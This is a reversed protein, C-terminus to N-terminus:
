RPDPYGDLGFPTPILPRGDDPSATLYLRYHEGDVPRLVVQIGEAQGADLAALTRAGNEAIVRPHFVNVSGLDFTRGALTLTFEPSIAYMCHPEGSLGARFEPDDHGTGNLTITLAPTFPSAICHGDLLLRAQRLAIREIAPLEAPVPFYQECHRQLVDLDEVYLRLEHLQQLAAASGAAPLQGGGITKGDTRVEFRGGTLLRHHLGLLKLADATDLGDLTSSFALKAAATKERPILLRLRGGHLDVEVSRGIAGAGLGDLRGTYTAAVTNHENFFAVEAAAGAHSSAGAPRWTVEVDHHTRSLWDPGSISLSEVAEPPLVVQEAVGFGLSRTLASILDESMRDARSTLSLSVPSVEHARPHKGRLTHVVADGERSFDVTWHPDLDDVQRGLAGVREALDQTGGCLMTREQNYVKAAEMLQDRAFSADLDHHTALRDDLEARDMITIKVSRGDALAEVFARESHSLTCPVVLTWEYPDHDMARAFSKKISPRRGKATTPFGDTYYKLQFIRVRAGSTVKIDIGGDGGRGNVPVVEATADYLRHVLAEVVRDFALQGIREWEIAVSFRRGLAGSIM